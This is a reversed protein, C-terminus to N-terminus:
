GMECDHGLKPGNVKEPEVFNAARLLKQPNACSEESNTWGSGKLSCQVASAVSYVYARLLQLM